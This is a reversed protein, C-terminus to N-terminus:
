LFSSVFTRRFVCYNLVGDILSFMLLPISVHICAFVLLPILVSEFYYYWLFLPSFFSFSQACICMLLLLVFREGLDRKNDDETIEINSRVTQTVGELSHTAKHKVKKAPRDQAMERGDLERKKGLLV